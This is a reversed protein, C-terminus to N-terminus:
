DIITCVREPVLAKVASIWIRAEHAPLVDLAKAAQLVMLRMAEIDIRARAILETNKGLALLPKGFATRESGRHVMLDLAREAAGVSRMCHHIRGAGLRLQAVESGRGEGL